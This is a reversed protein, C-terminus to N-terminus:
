CATFNNNWLQQMNVCTCTEPQMDLPVSDPDTSTWMGCAYKMVRNDDPFGAFWIQHPNSGSLGVGDNDLAAVAVFGGDDYYMYSISNINKFTTITITNITYTNGNYLVSDPALGDSQYQIQLEKAFDQLITYASSVKTRISYDRYAPISISSLFFIIGMVVLLETLSFARIYVCM